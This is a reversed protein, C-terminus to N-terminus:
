CGEYFPHNIGCFETIHPKQYWLFQVVISGDQEGEVKSNISKLIWFYQSIRQLVFQIKM